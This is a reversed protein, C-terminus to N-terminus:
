ELASFATEAKNLTVNIDDITHAASMFGAEYSSPAFYVGHDLMTQFFQNFHDLNCATVQEFKTVKKDKTFFFGFMGGACNVSLPIGQQDARVVLGQALQKTKKTLDEHFGKEKILNLTVIGATMAIPNGSLTGAQYVPGNPALHDMIVKKGGFAGVPM